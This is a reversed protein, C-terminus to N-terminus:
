HELRIITLLIGERTELTVHVEVEGERLQHTEAETEEKELTGNRGDQEEEKPLRRLDMM